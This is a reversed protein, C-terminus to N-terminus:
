TLILDKKTTFLSGPLNFAIHANRGLGLIQLDIPNQKIKNEYDKCTKKHDRTKGNLFNINQKKIKTKKFFHREMFQRFSHKDIPSLGFYEDLNFTTIRSFNSKKTLFKYLPIMTRGTALGLNLTPKIKIEKLIIEAVRKAVAEADKLIILKVGEKLM